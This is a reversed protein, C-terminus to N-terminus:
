SKPKHCRSRRVKKEQALRLRVLFHHALFTLTMQHHWGRWGRVEYHDMGLESKAEELVTEIPWRLASLRGLQEASCDSPVNCLFMKLESGPDVGRRLVLWAMAGPQQRGKCRCRTVRMCAVHAQIPGKTGEKLDQLEWAKQPLLDAVKQVEVPDKTGPLVRPYKRPRGMEGPGAPLVKVSGLYVLTTKKVEVFYYKGLAEVGDLFKPDAGYTEDGLVWTFPLIGRKKLNKIMGLALQPETVFRLDEPVGCRARKEAHADDFWHVPM